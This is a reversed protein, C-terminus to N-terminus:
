ASCRGDLKRSQNERDGSSKTNATLPPRNMVCMFLSASTPVGSAFKKAEPTRARSRLSPGSSQCSGGFKPKSGPRNAAKKSRSGRVVPSAAKSPSPCSLRSFCPATVVAATSRGRRWAKSTRCGAELRAREEIQEAVVVDRHDDGVAGAPERRKPVHRRIEHVHAQVAGLLEIHAPVGRMGQVLPGASAHRPQCGTEVHVHVEVVVDLDSCREVGDAQQLPDARGLRTLLSGNQQHEAQRDDGYAGGLDVRDVERRGRRRVSSPNPDATGPVDGRWGGTESGRAEIFEKFNEMDREAAKSVLGTKEGVTEALGEPDMELQLMVRTTADDLKHFTVVGAQDVGSTSRWAVQQDPSQETIEADFERAVGAIKVVWRLRRDDLQRVSEVDSMFRPFEEFQTWQNYATSIPVNVDVSKETTAM